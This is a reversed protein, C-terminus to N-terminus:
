AGQSDIQQSSRVHLAYLAVMLVDQKSSLVGCIQLFAPCVVSGLQKIHKGISWRRKLELSGADLQQHDVGRWPAWKGAIDIRTAVQQRPKGRKGVIENDQAM